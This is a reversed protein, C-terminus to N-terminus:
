YGGFCCGQRCLRDRRQLWWVEQTRVLSLGDDGEADASVFAVLTPFNNCGSRISDVLNGCSNGPYYSVDAVVFGVSTEM